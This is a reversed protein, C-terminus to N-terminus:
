EDRRDVRTRCFLRDILVSVIRSLPIEGGGEHIREFAESLQNEYARYMHWLPPPSDTSDQSSTKWDVLEPYHNSSM